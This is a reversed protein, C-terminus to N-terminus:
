RLIIVDGKIMEIIGDVYEIEAFWAFVGPQMPQGKYHGNWHTLPHYPAANWVTFVEEGWRDFIKFYNIKLVSRGPYLTFFDNIGDGNPSFANPVYLDRNKDVLIFVQAQAECGNESMASLTYLTSSLPRAHPSPCDTCNLGESPSWRFDAIPLTSQTKIITNGGLDLETECNIDLLFEPPSPLFVTSEVTCGLSDKAKYGYMGAPLGSYTKQTQFPRKDFSYLIPSIGVSANLQIEGNSDGYCDPERTEASVSIESVLLQHSVSATCGEPDSVTVTFVGTNAVTIASSTDGNSWSYNAYNGPYLSITEGACIISPAMITPSLKEAVRVFYIATSDCGLLTQAQYTFVTDKELTKGDFSEGWCRFLQFTDIPSANIEIHTFVMSDCGTWASSFTDILVISEQYYVGNFAEGNCLEVWVDQHLAPLVELHLSVTSDCGNQASFIQTYDGALNIEMSGFVYNEGQCIQAQIEHQFEPLVELTLQVTSDCGNAASLNNQYFGSQSLSNNGFIYTEGQCIQAVLQTNVKPLVQLSLEVFSDCGNNATFTQHYVDPETLWQNGFLYANGACITETFNTTYEPLIDLELTVTSDCGDSSAFTETFIGPVELWENGFLYAEGQCLQMSFVTQKQPLIILNLITTSDCGSPLTVTHSYEGQTTRMEGGFEISDGECITRSIEQSIIPEVILELLVTSDCGSTSTYHGSYNGSATLTQNNFTYSNGSCISVQINTQIPQLVQLNLTVLSDCGNYAPLTIQHSGQSSISQGGFIVSEDACITEALITQVIPLEVTVINSESRCYPNPLNSLSGAVLLRFQQGEAYNATSLCCSTEGLINEWTLGNDLSSQWQMFAGPWNSSFNPNLELQGNCPSVIAPLTIQPGCFRLSINDLALDNGFGGPANNRLAFSFQSAGPSDFAFEYTNWQMTMPIDGTSYVVNGNILFDVNPLIADPFEPLFLNIIDASFIYPTNECVDVTHEYFIGPGYNANVVMMYGNPDPSNDGIELWFLEAFWDWGVTSNAVCYAGDVPPPDLTYWYGPAIGPDYPLITAAGSGLDGDPFVNPGLHGSCLGGQAASFPLCFLCCLAFFILCNYLSRTLMANM